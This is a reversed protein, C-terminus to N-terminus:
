GEPLGAKRLGAEFRDRGGGISNTAARWTRITLAPQRQLLRGLWEKAEELRDLHACAAANTRMPSLYDPLKSLAETAWHSADEFRGQHLSAVGIGAEFYGRLPDLPSLRLGRKFAAIAVENQEQFCAAYGKAYWGTASSPNLVLARDAVAEAVAHERGFSSLTLSSWSLTDPDEKGLDIALRALEISEAREEATVARGQAALALRCEGILAAAAAYGPDITM